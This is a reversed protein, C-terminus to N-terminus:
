EGGYKCIIYAERGWVILNFVWDFLIMALNGFPLYFIKEGFELTLRNYILTMIICFNNIFYAARVWKSQFPKRWIVYIILIIPGLFILYYIMTAESMSLYFLLYMAAFTGLTVLQEESGRDKYYLLKTYSPIQDRKFILPIIALILCIM